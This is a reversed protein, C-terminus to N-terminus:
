GKQERQSVQSQSLHEQTETDAADALNRLTAFQEEEVLLQQELIDLGIDAAFQDIGTMEQYRRHAEDRKGKRLLGHLSGIQEDTLEYHVFQAPVHNPYAIHYAITQTADQVDAGTLQRYRIIAETKQDPLYRQIENSLLVRWNVPKSLRAGMHYRKEKIIQQKESEEETLSAEARRLAYIILALILLM